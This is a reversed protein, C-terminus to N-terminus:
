RDAEASPHVLEIAIAIATAGNAVAADVVGAVV